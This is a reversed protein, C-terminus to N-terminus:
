IQRMDFVNTWVSFIKLVDNLKADSFDLSITKEPESYLLEDIYDIGLANSPLSWFLWFRRHLSALRCRMCSSKSRSRSSFITAYLPMEKSKRSKSVLFM